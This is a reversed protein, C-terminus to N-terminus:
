LLWKNENHYIKNQKTCSPLGTNWVQYIESTLFGDTYISLVLLKAMTLGALWLRRHKVCLELISSDNLLLVEPLYPIKKPLISWVGGGSRQVGKVRGRWLFFAKQTCQTCNQSPLAIVKDLTHPTFYATQIFNFNIIQHNLNRSSLQM